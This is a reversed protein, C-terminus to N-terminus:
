RHANMSTFVYKQNKFHVLIAHSHGKLTKCPLALPSLREKTFLGNKQYVSVDSELPARNVIIFKFFFVTNKNYSIYYPIDVFHMGVGSSLIKVTESFAKSVSKKKLKLVKKNSTFTKIKIASFKM